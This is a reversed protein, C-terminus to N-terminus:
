TRGGKLIAHINEWYGEPPASGSTRARELEDFYEQTAHKSRESELQDGLRGRIDAITPPFRETLIHKEVNDLAVDFPFDQLYKFYHSVSQPSSDFSPYTRKVLSFIEIVQLKNV